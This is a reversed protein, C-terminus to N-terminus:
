DSESAMAENASSAEEDMAEPGEEGVLPPARDSENGEDFDCLAEMHENEEDGDELIGEWEWESDGGLDADLFGPTAPPEEPKSPTKKLIRKKTAPPAAIKVYKELHMAAAIGVEKDKHIFEWRSRKSGNPDANQFLVWLRESDASDAVYSLLDVM